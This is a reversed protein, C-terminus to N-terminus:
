ARHQWDDQESWPVIGLEPRPTGELVRDLWRDGRNLLAAIEAGIAALPDPDNSRVARDYRSAWDRM